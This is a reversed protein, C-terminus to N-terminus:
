LIPVQLSASSARWVRWGNLWVASGYELLLEARQTMQYQSEPSPLQSGFDSLTQTAVHRLYGQVSEIDSLDLRAEPYWQQQQRDGGNVTLTGKLINRFTNWEYLAIGDRTCMDFSEMTHIVLYRARERLPGCKLVEKGIRSVLQQEVTPADINERLGILQEVGKFLAGGESLESLEDRLFPQVVRARHKVQCFYILDTASDHIILDADYKLSGKGKHGKWAKFRPSNIRRKLYDSIYDEEFWKGISSGVKNLPLHLYKQLSFKLNLNQICLSTSDDKTTLFQDGSPMAMSDSLLGEVEKSIFGGRLLEDFAVTGLASGESIACVVDETRIKHFIHQLWVYCILEARRRLDAVAGPTKEKHALESLYDRHLSMHKDLVWDVFAQFVASHRHPQSIHALSNAVKIATVTDAMNSQLAWYRSFWLVRHAANLNVPIAYRLENDGEGVKELMGAMLLVATECGAYLCFLSAQAAGPLEDWDIGAEDDRMLRTKALDEKALGIYCELALVQNPPLTMRGGDSQSVYACVGVNTVAKRLRLSSRTRFVHHLVSNRMLCLERNLPEPVFRMIDSESCEWPRRLLAYATKQSEPKLADLRQKLVDLWHTNQTDSIRGQM